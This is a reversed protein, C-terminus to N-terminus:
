PLRLKQGVRLKVATSIRNARAIEAARSRTGYESKSVDELDNEGKRVTHFRPGNKSGGGRRSKTISNQLVADAVREILNVTVPLRYFGDGVAIPTPTSDWAVEGTLEWSRRAFRYPVLGSLRIVPLTDDDLKDGLRYLGDLVTDIRTRSPWGDLILSVAIRYPDHGEYRPVSVGAMRESVRHRPGGGDLPRCGDTNALGIVDTAPDDSALLISGPPAEPLQRLPADPNRGPIVPLLGPGVIRGPRRKARLPPPHKKRAM